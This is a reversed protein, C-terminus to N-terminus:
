ISNRKIRQYSQNVISLLVDKSPSHEIQNLNEFAMRMNTEGIKRIYEFAESEFCLELLLKIDSPEIITKKLISKIKEYRDTSSKAAYLLPLPLSEYSVRHALDAKVNLCDEMDDALRSMFGIRRGFKSLDEVQPEQGGGIMAGIKCCAATEGMAKWLIDQYYQLDTDLNKRCLTEMFEAECVEICFLGYEKFIAACLRPTNNTMEHMLTWAKVMLLDGVLLATDVGHLGLITMRLHKNSSKDIIDDHIGFGSSALTFMLSANESMAPDGGVAECSFSTLAPRSFDKWYKKVDELAQILKPNTIDEIVVQGFRQLIKECREKVIISSAELTDDNRYSM